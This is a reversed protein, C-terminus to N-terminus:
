GAASGRGRRRGPVQRDKHIGTRCVVGRARSDLVSSGAHLLNKRDGTPTDEDLVPGADKDVPMSEGTLLSEDASLNQASFLRIDAPVSAGAELFVIDGPVLEASDVEQRKGDRRVTARIKMM